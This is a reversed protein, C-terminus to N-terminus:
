NCPYSNTHWIPRGDWTYIVNNCDDQVDLRADGNGQTGSAWVPSNRNKNHNVDYMVLNGDKQMYVSAPAPSRGSTGTWWRAQTGYAVLNGDTQFAFTNRGNCSRMQQGRMLGQGPGLRGCGPSGNFQTTSVAYGDVKWVRTGPAGRNGISWFDWPQHDPAFGYAPLVDYAVWGVGEAYWYNEGYGAGGIKALRAVRRNGNVNLWEISVLKLNHGAQGAYDKVECALGNRQSLPQVYFNINGTTTGVTM